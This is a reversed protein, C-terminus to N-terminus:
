GSQLMPVLVAVIVAAVVGGALVGRLLGVRDPRAAVIPVGVALLSGAVLGGIVDGALGDDSPCPGGFASCHGIAATVLVTLCGAVASLVGVVIRTVRWAPRDRRLVPTADTRSM